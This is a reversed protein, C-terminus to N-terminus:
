SCFEALRDNLVGAAANLEHAIQEHRSREGGGVRVAQGQVPYWLDVRALEVLAALGGFPPEGRVVVLSVMPERSVFEVRVVRGRRESAAGRDDCGLAMSLCDLVGESLRVCYETSEVSLGPCDGGM